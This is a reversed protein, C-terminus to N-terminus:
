LVFYKVNKHIFKVQSMITDMASTKTLDTTDMKSFNKDARINVKTNKPDAM